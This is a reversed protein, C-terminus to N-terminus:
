AGVEAESIAVGRLGVLDVRTYGYTTQTSAHGLLDAIAKLPRGFALLRTALTHRFLYLGRRGTRDGLGARRLAARMIAALNNQVVFPEFPARHRLFITRNTSAPRGDHLYASLAEAVDPLLPLALPRDTKVQQIDIRAGRWDIEDLTLQRIDCPRLGYRAALLLIAYDRRGLPTSRDVSTLILDVDAQSLVDPLNVYRYQRPRPIADSLSDSLWGQAAAWRFFARLTSGYSRRPVGNEANEYFERVHRPTIRCLEKIGAGELFEAFISLQQVYKKETRASLGRHTRVFQVYPTLIPGFWAPTSPPSGIRRRFLGDQDAELLIRISARLVRSRSASLGKTRRALYQQVVDDGLAPMPGIGNKEMHLSFRLWEHLHQRVVESAYRLQVLSSGVQDLRQKLVSTRYRERDAGSFWQSFM